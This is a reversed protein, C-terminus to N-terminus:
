PALPNIKEDALILWAVPAVAPYPFYSWNLGSGNGQRLGTHLETVPAGNIGAVANLEGNKSLRHLSDLLPKTKNPEALIDYALAAQATGELWIGSKADSYDFGGPVGHLRELYALSQRGRALASPNYLIAFTQADLSSFTRNPTQGDPLTGTLYHDGDWMSDVFKSAANAGEIFGQNPYRKALARLFAATDINHETSKWSLTEPHDDFGEFGGRFGGNPKVVDILFKGIRRAAEAYKVDNTAAAIKLLALGAWANNGTASGDQYSDEIWTQQANDWYGPLKVPKAEVPGAANANRLRGDHYTRDLAQAFVMADAIRRAREVDKEALFAMITLAQDYTYAVAAQHIEPSDYSNIFAANGPIKDLHAALWDGQEGANAPVVLLFCLLIFLMTTSSNV